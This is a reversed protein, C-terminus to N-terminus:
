LAKKRLKIVTMTAVGIISLILIIIYKVINDGTSPNNPIEDAVVNKEYVSTLEDNDNVVYNEDLLNSDADKLGKFTYGEKTTDILNLLQEYTTGYSVKYEQGDVSVTYEIINFSIEVDTDQVINEITLKENELEYEKGNVTVKNVAYGKNAVIKLTYDDDYSVTVASKIENDSEDYIIGNEGVIFNLEYTKKTYVPEVYIDNSTVMYEYKDTLDDITYEEVSTGLIPNSSSDYGTIETVKLSELRYGLNPNSTLVVYKDSGSKYSATVVGGLSDKVIVQPRKVLAKEAEVLDNYVNEYISYFVGNEDQQVVMNSDKYDKTSLEIAGITEDNGNLVKLLNQYTAITYDTEKYKQVREVLTVLNTKDYIHWKGVYKGDQQTSGLVYILGGGLTSLDITQSGSGNNFIIHNHGDITVEYCYVNSNDDDKTMKVGAWQANNEGADNWTYVYAEAFVSTEVCVKDGIRLEVLEHADVKLVGVFLIAMFVLMFSIKKKMNVDKRLWM